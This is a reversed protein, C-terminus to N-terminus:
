ELYEDVAVRIGAISELEQLSIGYVAQLADNATKIPLLEVTKFMYEEPFNDKLYTMALDAKAYPHKGAYFATSWGNNATIEALGIPEPRYKKANNIFRGTMVDNGLIDVAIVDAMGEIFWMNKKLASTGNTISAQYQHILEHATLFQIRYGSRGENAIIQIAGTKSRGGVRDQGLEDLSFMNPIPKTAVYIKVDILLEYEPFKERMYQDTKQAAYVVDEIASDSADINVVEISAAYVVSVITWFLFALIGTKTKM